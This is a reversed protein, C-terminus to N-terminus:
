IYNFVESEVFEGHIKFILESLIACKVVIWGPNGVGDM